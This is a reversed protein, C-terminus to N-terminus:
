PLVSFLISQKKLLCRIINMSFLACMELLGLEKVAIVSPPTPTLLSFGYLTKLSPIPIYVYIRDTETKDHSVKICVSKYLSADLRLVHM